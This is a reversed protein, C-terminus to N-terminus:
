TTHSNNLRIGFISNLIKFLFSDYPVITDVVGIMTSNPLPGFVLSDKSNLRNDGMVFYYGKPIVIAGNNIPNEADEIIELNVDSNNQNVYWASSTKNRNFSNVNERNSNTLVYDEEILTGNVYINVQQTEDNWIFNLTDGETAIVRKILLEATGVFQTHDVIVIDGKKHTTAANVLVIDFHENDESYSQNITPLMSEGNVAKAYHTSCYVVVVAFIILLFLGLATTLISVRKLGKHELITGTLNESKLAKKAM